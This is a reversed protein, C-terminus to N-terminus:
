GKKLTEDRRIANLLDPFYKDLWSMAITRQAVYKIYFNIPVGGEAGNVRTIYDDLATMLSNLDIVKNERSDVEAMSQVTATIYDSEMKEVAQQKRAQGALQGMSVMGSNSSGQAAALAAMREKPDDKLAKVTSIVNNSKISPIIGMSIVSCHSQINSTSLLERTSQATEADVGFSGQIKEMFLSREIQAAAQFAAAQTAQYDSTREVQSFNVFGVFSSGYTAGALVPLGKEYDEKTGKTKVIKAMLEPNEPDGQEWSGKTAIWADIATEPELVLPSFIQAMKHSCNICIVLTGVLNHNSTAATMSSNASASAQAGAGNGLLDTVKVGVYASVKNAHSHNSDENEQYRFYQVDMTMTDSSIPMPKLQSAEFDVPSQVASSIQKQGQGSKLKFIAKEAAMVAKSLDLASSEIDKLLDDLNKKLEDLHESKAGLTIMERMTMDLSLKQRILANLKERQLNVPNQLEAIKKLQNIKQPQVVMGLVLSPDFPITETPM